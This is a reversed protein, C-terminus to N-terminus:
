KASSVRIEELAVVELIQKVIIPGVSEWSLMEAIVM